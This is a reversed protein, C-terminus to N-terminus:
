VIIIAASLGLMTGLGSYLDSCKKRKEEADTLKESFLEEFMSCMNMQGGTDSAGLSEGFNMLLRKEEENLLSCSKGHRVAGAFADKLSEGCEMSKMCLDIMDLRGLSGSLSMERLIDYIEPSSFGICNKFYAIMLKIETLVRVRESLKYAMLRGVFYGTMTVM